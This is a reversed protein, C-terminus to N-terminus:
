STVSTNEQGTLILTHQFARQKRADDTIGDGNDQGAKQLQQEVGGVQDHYAPETAADTDGGYAGGARQGVQHHIEEDPQGHARTNTNGMAEAAPLVRHNAIGDMGGQQGGQEAAQKEGNCTNTKGFGEQADHAGRVIHQRQGGHIHADVEAADGEAHDVIEAGGYEPGGPVGLTGEEVQGDGAYDVHYQVDEEDRHEM